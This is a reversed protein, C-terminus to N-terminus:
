VVSATSVSVCESYKICVATPFLCLLTFWEQMNKAISSMKTNNVAVFSLSLDITAKRHCFYYRSRAVIYRQVYM